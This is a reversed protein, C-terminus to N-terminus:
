KEPDSQQWGTYILLLGALPYVHKTQNPMEGNNSDPGQGRCRLTVVAGGRRHPGPGLGEVENLYWNLLFMEVFVRLERVASLKTDRTGPEAEV